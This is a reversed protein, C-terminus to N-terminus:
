IYQTIHLIEHTVVSMTYILFEVIRMYSLLSKIIEKKFLYIYINSNNNKTKGEEELKSRCYGIIHHKQWSPCVGYLLFFFFFISNKKKKKLKLYFYLYV